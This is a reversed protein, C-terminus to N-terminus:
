SWLARRGERWVGGGKGREKGGELRPEECPFVSVEDKLLKLYEKYGLGDRRAQRAITVALEDNVRKMEPIVYRRTRWVRRRQWLQLPFTICGRVTLALVVISGWLPLPSAALLGPLPTAGVASSLGELAETFLTRRSAAGTRNAPAAALGLGVRAQPVAPRKSSLRPSLSLRSVPRRAYTSLSRRTTLRLGLSSTSSSVGGAARLGHLGGLLPRLSMTPPTTTHISSSCTRTSIPRGDVDGVEM